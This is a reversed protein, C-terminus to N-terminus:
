RSLSARSCLQHPQSALALDCLHENLRAIGRRVWSKVTGLPVGFHASLEAHPMDSFFNLAIAQRQVAPLLAIAAALRIKAASYFATRLADTEEVNHVVMTDLVEAAGEISFSHQDVTQSRLTSVAQNRVITILWTMATGRDPRYQRAEQWISLYAEQLVEEALPPTKVIRLAVHYLYANTMKYIEAFAQESGCSALHLLEVLRARKDNTPKMALM